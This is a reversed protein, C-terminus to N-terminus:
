RLVTLTGRFWHENEDCALYKVYYIYEDQPVPQDKYSGNWQLGPKASEFIKEGWRNYIVLLYSTGPDKYGNGPFHENLGDENPSFANPFYMESPIANGDEKINITDAVICNDKNKVTVMYQGADKVLISQITAGTNWRYEVMRDGAKLELASSLCIATDNGLGADVDPFQTLMVSDSEICGEISTITVKKMGPSNAQLHRNKSLDNWLYDTYNQLPKLLRNVPGCYFTDAGLDLGTVIFDILASDIVTCLKNQVKVIYLGPFAVTIKPTREETNWFYNTELVTKFSYNIGDLIVTTGRCFLTDNLYVKPPPYLVFTISDSSPCGNIDVVDVWYKDLKSIFVGQDQTGVNWLYSKYGSKGAFVFQVFSDRCIVSDGGLDITLLDNEIVITDRNVCPNDSVTISYTGAKNIAITQTKEGTSWFYTKSAAGPDLKATFPGCYLTDKGLDIKFNPKVYIEFESTDVCATNHAILKVTYYGEKQYIYVPHAKSSTDNSIGDVGFDWHYAISGQSRNQFSVPQNTCNTYPVGFSSVVDFVCNTVNFQYDRKTEGILKGKRFELVKIGLVFQGNQIPTLTLKGTKRNISLTPSGNVQYTGSYGAEWTILNYQDPSTSGNNKAPNTSSPSTFPTYLEYALSDGDADSASHDINVPANICLLNAPLGNFVPSSNKPIESVPPIRTWFTAGTTKSSFVNSVFNNRCCREFALVYGDSNAPVTIDVNFTYKDVCILPYDKICTYNVKSVRVPGTRANSLKIGNVYSYTNASANYSYIHIYSQLDADIAGQAGNDCDNYIFLTVNYKLDGNVNSVYKYMIEGGVIHTAKAQLVVILLLTILYKRM